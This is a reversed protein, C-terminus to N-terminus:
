LIIISTDTTPRTRGICDFRSDCVSAVLGLDCFLVSDEKENIIKRIESKLRRLKAPSTDIVFVSYQVRDGYSQLKHALKNRRKDESLDYAILTRRADERTM